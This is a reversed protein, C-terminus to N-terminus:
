HCDVAALDVGTTYQMESSTVDSTSFMNVNRMGLVAPLSTVDTLFTVTLVLWTWAYAERTQAGKWLLCMICVNELM